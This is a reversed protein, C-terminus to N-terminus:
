IWDVTVCSYNNPLLIIQGWSWVMMWEALERSVHLLGEKEGTM